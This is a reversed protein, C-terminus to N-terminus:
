GLRRYVWFVLGEAALMAIIIAILTAAGHLAGLFQVADGLLFNIVGLMIFKSGFLIVWTFLVRIVLWLKGDRGAFWDGVRHELTLTAQLLLQLLVAALISAGYSPILVSTSYEAFLNLVVLDVLIAILYRTFLRQRDNAPKQKPAIHHPKITTEKKAARRVITQRASATM